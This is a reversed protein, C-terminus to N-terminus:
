RTYDRAATVAGGVVATPAALNVPGVRGSAAAATSRLLWLRRDGTVTSTRHVDGAPQIEAALTVRSRSVGALTVVTTPATLDVRIGAEGAFSTNTGPRTERLGHETRLLTCGSNRKAFAPPNVGTPCSWDNVEFMTLDYSDSAEDRWVSAWGTHANGPRGAVSGARQWSVKAVRGDGVQTWTRGARSASRADEPIGPGVWEYERSMWLNASKTSVAPGSMELPGVRGSATVRYTTEVEAIQTAWGPDVATGIGGNPRVQLRVPYTADGATLTTSIDLGLRGVVTVSLPAGLTYTFTSPLRTCASIDTFEAPCRYDRLLLTADEDGSDLSYEFTVRHYNGPRGTLGGKVSWQIEVGREVVGTSQWGSAIGASDSAAATPAAAAM